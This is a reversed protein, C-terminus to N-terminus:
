TPPLDSTSDTSLQPALGTCFGCHHLVFCGTWWDQGLGGQPKRFCYGEDGHIFRHTVPCMAQHRCSIILNGFSVSFCHDCESPPSPSKTDTGGSHRQHKSVWDHRVKQLGMSQLGGTEETRTIEWALISSHTTMEKELPDEPGLSQVWTEQM